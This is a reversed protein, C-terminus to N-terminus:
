AIHSPSGAAPRAWHHTSFRPKDSSAACAPTILSYGATKPLPPLLAPPPLPPPPLRQLGSAIHSPSGAAPRAWHHTSFRPKDSSAACALTMLSYGATKPLPPLLPPPPRPPGGGTGGCNKHGMMILM